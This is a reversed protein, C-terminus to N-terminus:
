LYFFCELGDLSFFFSSKSLFKMLYSPLFIFIALFISHRKVKINYNIKLIEKM